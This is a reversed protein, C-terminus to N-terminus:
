STGVFTVHSSQFSNGVQSGYARPAIRKVMFINREHIFWTTGFTPLYRVPVRKAHDLDNRETTTKRSYMWRHNAVLETKATLIRTAQRELVEAGIWAVIEGNLKDSSAISISATFLKTFYWYAQLGLSQLIRWVGTLTNFITLVAALTTLDLKLWTTFFAKLFGFRASAGSISRGAAISVTASKALDRINGVADAM